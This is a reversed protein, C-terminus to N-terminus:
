NPLHSHVNSSRVPSGTRCRSTAVASRCDRDAVHDLLPVGGLDAPAASTVAEVRASIRATELAEVAGTARNLSLVVQEAYRNADDHPLVTQVVYMSEGIHLLVARLNDTVRATRVRPDRPSKIAKLRVRLSHPETQLKILFDVVGGGPV